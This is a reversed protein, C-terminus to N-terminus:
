SGRRSREAHGRSAKVLEAGLRERSVAPDFQELRALGKARLTEAVQPDRMQLLGAAISAPDRPDVWIAADGAVEVLSSNAATLVPTEVAFAELLPLGFGEYLSPYAVAVAGKLIATRTEDDVYGTRVVKESIGLSEIESDFVSYGNGVMVLSVDSWKEAAIAFAELLNPVNKRPDLGGNYVVYTKDKLGAPLQGDSTIASLDSFLPPIVTARRRFFHRIDRASSESITLITDSRLMVASTWVLYPLAFAPRRYLYLGPLRLPVLDHTTSITWTKNVPLFPIGNNSPAWYLDFRRQRLLKPLDYQDWILNRRSGFGLWETAPFLTRYDETPFNTLLCVDAKMDLLYQVAGRFYGYFGIGPQRATRADVGVSVGELSASLSSNNVGSPREDTVLAVACFERPLDGNSNSRPEPSHNLATLRHCCAM